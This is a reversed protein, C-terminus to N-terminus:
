DQLQNKVGREIRDKTRQKLSELAVELSELAKQNHQCPLPGSQFCELRDICVALLSEITIGNPYDNPYIPGDQFLLTYTSIPELSPDIKGFSNETTDLGHIDYRNPTGIVNTGKEEIILQKNDEEILHKTILRSM